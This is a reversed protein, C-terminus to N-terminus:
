DFKYSVGASFTIGPSLFNFVRDNANFARFFQERDDNLINDVEFDVTFRKEAGLTKNLNFKLSHFPISYVDPYLGNGVFVLTPGKVNYFFGANFGIEPNDYGIGANVIYPAQGAMDRSNDISQGDKQFRERARFENPNMEISSEVLTLNGNISFLKLKPNIFDLKKRIEIEIGYVEGDGVNRPQFATNTNTSAFRVIEIPDNFTKYFASFSLLEGPRLYLEWRVDYNNIYTERLNGDWVTTTGGDTLIPFLGGSFTRNTVPDLIEAFSAEKFSPRAISRYYSTRLNMNENLAYILNMSPFLDFNDLVRADVFNDEGGAEVTNRVAGEYSQIFYEGRLGIIAKFGLLPEFENSLYIGTNTADAKYANTNPRGADGNQGQYYIPGDPALNEEQLVENADGTWTPQSGLFAVQYTLISYDRQKYLQSFGFKFKADREKFEYNRTIDARGTINTEDLFRWIRVPFGAEGAAFIPGAPRDSFNTARIDPDEVRSFTPSIRWDIVWKDNDFHHDGGLFINTMRRENYEINNSTGTYGSNGVANEDDILNFNAARSEGNQLHMITLKYKSNQTKYAIGGLGALLVNNEALPGSISDALQLPLDNSESKNQFEGFIARDYYRTDNKYNATFIYGLKNGNELKFQNGLTLGLDFNVPSTTQQAALVPDFEKIFEGIEQDSFGPEIPSPIPETRAREPLERLGNDFGLFDTGSSRKIFDSNFHMAPNYGVGASVNFVKKSPFESTEINVIGGTFDAPMEALASKLVTMNSIIATPFIDIQLSNRDPDLGPISMGNLTTKTYRDGLGRVYVYKGGEVSVGPVRKVAESANGDGIKRFRAASIGDIVNASKRKVTILAEETNELAEATVTVESLENSAPKLRINDLLTVEGETINVGTITTSSLGIFSVVVNYTGTAASIEFNGDFDSVAGNTTGELVVNASFLPQGTENEIIQGRLIGTQAQLLVFTSSLIFTIFFAPVRSTLKM